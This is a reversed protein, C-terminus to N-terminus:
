GGQLSTAELDQVLKAVTGAALSYPRLMTTSLIIRRSLEPEVIRAVSFLNVESAPIANAVIIAYGGGATVIARQMALSDAEVAINLAVQRTRALSELHARMLHPESPVILPLRAVEDFRITGAATVPDNALSLLYLNLRRLTVEGPYEKEDERLLLSLDLRGQNLWEELQVSSGETLHLHIDPFREALVKFLPGALRSVTFPLLGLRVDGMPKGSSARIYDALQDAQASLAKIRPFVKNGFDTLVVGRGTRRFLREGCERELMGIQRSVVSQTTNLVSATHTLSGLEAVKIFLLWKSEVIAMAGTTQTQSTGRKMYKALCFGWDAICM